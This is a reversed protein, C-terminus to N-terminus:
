VSPLLQKPALDDCRNSVCRGDGLQGEDGKGWAYVDGGASCLHLPSSSHVSSPATRSHFHFPFGTTVAVTHHSGAAISSCLDHAAHLEVAAVGAKCGKGRGLQGFGGGGWTWVRGDCTLAVSHCEGCAVQHLYSSQVLHPPPPPAQTCPMPLPLPLPSLLPPSPSTHGIQGCVNSRPCLPIATCKIQSSPRLPSPSINRTPFFRLTRSVM